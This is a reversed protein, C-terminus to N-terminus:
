AQPALSLLRVTGHKSEIDVGSSSGGNVAGEVTESAGHASGTLNFNNFTSGDDTHMRAHFKAVESISVNVDGYGSMFTLLGKWATAGVSADIEGKQTSARAAGNVQLKIDGTGVAVDVGGNVDTVIVTGRQVNLMIHVGDPVRILLSSLPEPATVTIGDPAKTIRPPSAPTKGPLGYAAITFRDRPEGAAPKYVNVSAQMVNVHM